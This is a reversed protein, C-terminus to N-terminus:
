AASRFAPAIDDILAVNAKAAVEGIVLIAPGEVGGDRVIRALDRLTGKFIKQDARTGNEIVAAPTSPARGNEILRAAITAAKGVGMYVVLTHGLAALAAWDLDPEADGKAHGTVFTLAQAADRHTLPLGAAAACGLAATVGPTVFVPIGAARVAELEEGGRGFIFPDGGKLRVVTKGERAFAILRAEIEEQPVAHDAKAKGVYLRLADRRALDLIGDGVLRDYLIVDADQILRLARLTLLEPDGPGAGVIHVAGPQQETQPRNLAAAMAERAGAEDGELVKAAVPGDFFREWFARRRPAAVKAAVADRFSGAFAALASLRQPLLAEIKERLRRGLVPAEGGTSIAIVVDGRDVISPTAFDSLRPRDVANVPVGAARAAHAWAQADPESEVAVFVLAAGKLIEADPASRVLVARGAWEAAFAADFHPAAFEVAAGASELLRAKRSAIESAGVVVARRGKLDFFAPFIKM